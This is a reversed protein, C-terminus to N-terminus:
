PARIAPCVDEDEDVTLKPLLEFACDQTLVVIVVVILGDVQVVPVRSLLRSIVRVSVTVKVTATASTSASATSASATSAATAAATAAAAAVRTTHTSRLKWDQWRKELGHCCAVIGGHNALSQRARPRDIIVARPDVVQRLEAVVRLHGLTNM